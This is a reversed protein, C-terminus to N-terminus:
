HASIQYVYIRLPFRKILINYSMRGFAVLITKLLIINNYKLIPYNDTGLHYTFDRKGSVSIKLLVRTPGLMKCYCVRLLYRYYGRGNKFVDNYM